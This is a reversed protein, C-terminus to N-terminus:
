GCIGLIGLPNNCVGSVCETADTCPSGITGSSCFGLPGGPPKACSWDAPCNEATECAGLLCIRDKNPLYDNNCVAGGLGVPCSGDEGCAPMTYCAAVDDEFCIANSECGDPSGDPTCATSPPPTSCLGELCLQDGLCDGNGGCSPVENNQCLLSSTDCYQDDACNDNNTCGLACLGNFCFQGDPCMNDESCPEFGGGEASGSQADGTESAGDTEDGLEGLDADCAAALSLALFLFCRSLTPINM